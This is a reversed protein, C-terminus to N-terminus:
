TLYSCQHHWPQNWVYQLTVHLEDIGSTISANTQVSCCSVSPHAIPVPRGQICSRAHPNRCWLDYTTSQVASLVTEGLMDSIGVHKLTSCWHYWQALIVLQQMDLHRQNRSRCPWTLVRLNMDQICFVHLLHMNFPVFDSWLQKGRRVNVKNGLDCFWWIADYCIPTLMVNRVDFVFDLWSHPVFSVGPFCKLCYCPPPLLIIIVLQHIKHFACALM